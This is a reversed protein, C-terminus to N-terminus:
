FMKGILIVVAMAIISIMSIFVVDDLALGFM